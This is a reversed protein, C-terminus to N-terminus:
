TKTNGRKNDLIYFKFEDNLNEIERKSSACTISLQM